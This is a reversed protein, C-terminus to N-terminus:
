PRTPKWVIDRRLMPWPMELMRRDNLVLTQHLGAVVVLADERVAYGELGLVRGPVYMESSNRTM